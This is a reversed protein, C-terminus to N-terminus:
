TRSSSPLLPDTLPARCPSSTPARVDFAAWNVIGDRKTLLNRENDTNRKVLPIALTGEVPAAGSSPLLAATAALAALSGTKM